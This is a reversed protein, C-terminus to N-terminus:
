KGEGPIVTLQKSERANEAISLSEASKEYPKRFEADQWANSDVEEWAYLKYEGPAVGRLTAHGYQDTPALKYFQPLAARAGDPVAVVIAGVAPQQKADQVTVDVSGAAPSLLIDLTEGAGRTLNLGAALVDDSGYRIAKVYMAAPTGMLSVDYLDPAANQVIFSGDEKVRGGGAGMGAADTRPQLMLNAGSFKAESSGEVRIRGQLEVPPMLTLTVNEAGDVGVALPQRASWRQNDQWREAGLIYAGPRLGRLVFRGDAGPAASGPRGNFVDPSSERVAFVTVNRGLPQGGPDVIRGTVRVTRVRALTIDMGRLVAGATANVPVAGAADVTNPYFTPAYNEETDARGTSPVGAWRGLASLYYKGPQLGHLRYDGQDDATASESAALQRRGRLYTYRMVTVTSGAAPDGDEDLVRGTIVAQPTLRLEVGTMKQGDALTITSGGRNSGRAGYELRVFGNREASLRYTGREVDRFAFAGSADTTAALIGSAQPTTVSRLLLHVKKLPEGTLANVTQGSIAANDQAHVACCSLLLVLCRPVM